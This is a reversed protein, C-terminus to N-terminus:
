GERFFENVERLTEKIDSGYDPAHLYFIGVCDTNLSALSKEFQTRLKAPEHDGKSFPFAKTAISLGQTNLKALVEETNGSCYMRATDIENHGLSKFHDLIEQLTALDSIRGGEGVGMTMTGLIIKM